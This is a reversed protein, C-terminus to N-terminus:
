ITVTQSAHTVRDTAHARRMEAIARCRAARVGCYRGAYRSLRRSGDVGVRSDGPSVLPGSFPCPSSEPIITPAGGARPPLSAPVSYPKQMRSSIFSPPSIPNRRPLGKARSTEPQSTHRISALACSDIFTATFHRYRTIIYQIFHIPAFDAKETPEIGWVKAAPHFAAHSSSGSTGRALASQLAPQRPAMARGGLSRFVYRNLLSFIGEASVPGPPTGLGRATQYGLRARVQKARTCNLISNGAMM